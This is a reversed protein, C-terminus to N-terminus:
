LSINYFEAKWFSFFDSLLGADHTLQNRGVSQLFNDLNKAINVLVQAIIALGVGLPLIPNHLKDVKGEGYFIVGVRGLVQGPQPAMMLKCVDKSRDKISNHVLTKLILDVITVAAITEPLLTGPVAFEGNVTPPDGNIKIHGSILRISGSVHGRFEDGEKLVEAEFPAPVPGIVSVGHM